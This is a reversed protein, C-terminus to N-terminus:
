IIIYDNDYSDETTYQNLNGNFYENNTQDISQSTVFIKDKYIIESNYIIEITGYNNEPVIKNINTTSIFTIYNGSITTNLSLLTEQTNTTENTIIVDVTSEVFTRPIVYFTNAGIPTVIKM